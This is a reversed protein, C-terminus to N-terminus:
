VAPQKKLRWPLKLNKKRLRCTDNVLTFQLTDGSREFRYVGKEDCGKPSLGGKAQLSILDKKITYFGWADRKGDRDVDVEFTGDAKLNWVMGTANTWTGVLVTSKEKQFMACGSLLALGVAAAFLFFRPRKMASITGARVSRNLYLDVSDGRREAQRATALRLSTATDESAGVLRRWSKPEALLPPRGVGDPRLLEQIKKRQRLSV